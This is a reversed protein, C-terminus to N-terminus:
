FVSCVISNYWGDNSSLWVMLVVLVEWTADKVAGVLELCKLFMKSIMNITLQFKETDEPDTREM